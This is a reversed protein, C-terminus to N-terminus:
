ETPPAQQATATLIERLQGSMSEGTEPHVWDCVAHMLNNTFPGDLKLNVTIGNREAVVLGSDRLSSLHRNVTSQPWGLKEIL